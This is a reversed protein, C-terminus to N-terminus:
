GLQSIFRLDPFLTVHNCHTSMKGGTLYIETSRASYCYCLSYTNGISVYLALWGFHLATCACSGMFCHSLVADLFPVM